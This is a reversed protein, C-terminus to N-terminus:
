HAVFSVSKLIPAQWFRMLLYDKAIIAYDLYKVQFFYLKDNFFRVNQLWRIKRYNLQNEGHYTM